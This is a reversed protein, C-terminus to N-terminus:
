NKIIPSNFDCLLRCYKLINLIVRVCFRNRKTRHLMKRGVLNQWRVHYTSPHMPLLLHFRCKEEFRIQVFTVNACSSNLTCTALIMKAGLLICILWDIIIYFQSKGRRKDLISVLQKYHLMKFTMICNIWFIVQTATIETPQNRKYM